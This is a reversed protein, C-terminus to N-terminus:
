KEPPPFPAVKESTSGAAPGPNASPPVMMPPTTRKGPLKRKLRARALERMDVALDDKEFIERGILYEMVDEMTIVGATSGFEDVVMLLQQHTKLFEQLAQAATATEPIFHIEHMHGGILDNELDNAVAKLLDRRRVLGVVDDFSDNYVPIRAFPINPYADFIEGVTATRKIATIVTRPTMIESVRVADLSLANTIISSESKTLSGDQAGREALLIIEEDSDTKEPPSTIVLRVLLNCLYTVPRLANRMMLLPYVVHPQLTRRYVVGLNKPIVESFFLIGLTMLASVIGLATQGFLEIALGGITISGLTNAITNLTLITSITEELASRLQELLLGVKPRSKKLSEVESVTTSLILAEMLSCVFSIGLTLIIALAFWFM